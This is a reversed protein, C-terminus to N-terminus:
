LVSQLWAEMAEKLRHSKWDYWAQVWRDDTTHLVDKFRRFAGKGMLAISLKEAVHEDKPTVIENVFNVMWQYAESSPIREIRTYDSSGDIKELQKEHENSFSDDESLFLVEGTLTNLYYTNMMSSDEMAVELMDMDIPKGNPLTAM